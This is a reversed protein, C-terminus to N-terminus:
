ADLERPDWQDGMLVSLYGIWQAVFLDKSLPGQPYSDSFTHTHTHTHTHTYTHTHTHTHTRIHAHISKHAHVHTRIYLHTHMHTLLTHIVGHQHLCAELAATGDERVKHAHTRTRTRTHTHTHTHIYTHPHTHTRRHTHTYTHTHTHTCTRRVVLMQGAHMHALTCTDIQTVSVQEKVMEATVLGGGLRHAMTVCKEVLLCLPLYLTRCVPLGLTRCLPLCLTRCGPLYLKRCGHLCVIMVVSMFVVALCCVDASLSGDDSIESCDCGSRISCFM